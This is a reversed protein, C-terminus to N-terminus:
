IHLPSHSNIVETLFFMIQSWLILGLLEKKLVLCLIPNLHGLLLDATEWFHNFGETWKGQVVKQEKDEILVILRCSVGDKM